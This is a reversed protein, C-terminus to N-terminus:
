VLMAYRVRDRKAPLTEGAILVRCQPTREHAALACPSVEVSGPQVLAVWLGVVLTSGIAWRFLYKMTCTM